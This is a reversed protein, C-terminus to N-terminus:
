GDPSQTWPATISGDAAGPPVGPIPPAADEPVIKDIATLIKLESKDATVEDMREFIPAYGPLNPFDKTNLIIKGRLKVGQYRNGIDTIVKTVVDEFSSGTAKYAHGLFKRAINAIVGNFKKVEKQLIAQSTIFNGMSPEYYRRHVTQGSENTVEVLMFPNTTDITVLELKTIELNERIGPQIFGGSQKESVTKDDFGYQSM